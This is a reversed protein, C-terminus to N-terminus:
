TKPDYGTKDWQEKCLQVYQTKTMGRKEYAKLDLYKRIIDESFEM